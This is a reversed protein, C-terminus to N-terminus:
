KKGAQASSEDCNWVRELPYTHDKYLEDLNNYFSAVNSECLGKARASELVQLARFTLEPHHCKWWRM